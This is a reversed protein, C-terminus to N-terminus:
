LLLFPIYEFVRGVRNGPMLEIIELRDLQALKQICETEKIEYRQLIDHYSYGNIVCVAIMLLLIDAAIEKEQADTLQSIHQQDQAMKGVLESFELELMDCILELRQLTFNEDAFLRKVSAESLALLKAVDAYTKGHAKLQKKLTKVLAHIQAM